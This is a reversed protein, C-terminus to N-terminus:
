IFFSGFIIFFSKHINTKIKNTLQVLSLGALEWTESSSISSIPHISISYITVAGDKGLIPLCVSGFWPTLVKKCVRFLQDSIIAMGILCPSLIVKLTEKSAGAGRLMPVSFIFIIALPITIASPSLLAETCKVYM